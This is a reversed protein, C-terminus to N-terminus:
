FYILHESILLFFSGDANQNKKVFDLIFDLDVEDAFGMLDLAELCWYLGSMRLYETM